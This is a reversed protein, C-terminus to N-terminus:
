NYWFFLQNQSINWRYFCYSGWFVFRCQKDRNRRKQLFTRPRGSPAYLFSVQMVVVKFNGIIICSFIDSVQPGWFAYVGMVAVYFTYAVDVTLWTRLSLIKKIDAWFEEFAGKRVSTATSESDGHLQLPQATAAFLVFPIMMAAELAFTWRWSLYVTMIGGMIYGFAFGVPICLYFCAFWLSRANIPAWDDTTFSVCVISM